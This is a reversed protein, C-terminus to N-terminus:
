EGKKQQLEQQKRQLEYELRRIEEAVSKPPTQGQYRDRLTWLRQQIQYVQDGLIKQDLRYEVLKVDEAEAFYNIAGVVSGVLVILIVCIELHKKM